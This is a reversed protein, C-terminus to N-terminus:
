LWKAYSPSCMCGYDCTSKSQTTGRPLCLFLTFTVALLYMIKFAM